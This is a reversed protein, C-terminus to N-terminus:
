AAAETLGMLQAIKERHYTPDGLLTAAARARKFYLHAPHDWTFGMGGHIQIAEAACKSFAESCYARAISAAEALNEPSEAATCAAYYAASRASEVLLLMDALKHKMAQFSGIPRNFQIRTKAHDLSLALVREAGGLQEAALMAAAFSLTQQFAPAASEPTGLIASQPIEINQYRITSYPRTLDLTTHHTQHLGPQTSPLAILSLGEANRSNPARCAIILTKAAAAHPVFGSQGTLCYTAGQRHLEATIGKPGPTGHENTFCLTAPAGALIPPILDSQQPLTAAALIAPIAMAATAFLPIPALAAGSEQMLIALEVATLGAGGMSEPVAVGPWGLELTVAQWLSEDMPTPAAVYSQLKKPTAHRAFFSRAADGIAVQEATFRFEM